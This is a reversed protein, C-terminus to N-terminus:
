ICLRTFHVRDLLLVGVRLLLIPVHFNLCRDAEDLRFGATVHDTFLAAGHNCGAERIFGRRISCSAQRELVCLTAFRVVLIEAGNTSSQTHLYASPGQSSSGAGIRYTRHSREEM